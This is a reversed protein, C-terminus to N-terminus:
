LPNSLSLHLVLHSVHLNRSKTCRIYSIQRYIEWPGIFQCQNQDCCVVLWHRYLRHGLEGCIHTVRGLCIFHSVQETSIKNVSKSLSMNWATCTYMPLIFICFLPIFNDKKNLLLEMDTISNNLEDERSLIAATECIVNELANEHIFFTSNQNFNWQLKNRLTWNVILLSQNLYNNPM